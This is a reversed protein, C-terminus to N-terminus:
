IRLSTLPPFRKLLPPVRHIGPEDTDIVPSAAAFASLHTPVAALEPSPVAVPAMDAVPIAHQCASPGRHSHCPPASPEDRQSQASCVFACGVNGLALLLILALIQVATRM